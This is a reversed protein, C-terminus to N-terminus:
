VDGKWDRRLLDRVSLADLAKKATSMDDDLEDMVKQLKKGHWRSLHLLRAATDVDETTTRGPSLADSDLAIASSCRFAFFDADGSM